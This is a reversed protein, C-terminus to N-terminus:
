RGDDFSFTFPLEISLSSGIGELPIACNLTIKFTWGSTKVFRRKRSLLDIRHHGVPFNTATQIQTTHISHATHLVLMIVVVYKLDLM